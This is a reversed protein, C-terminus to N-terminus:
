AFDVKAARLARALGKRLKKERTRLQQRKLGLNRAAEEQSLNLVYRQEYLGRLEPPLAALYREVVALVAPDIPEPEGDDPAELEALEPMVIERKHKRAWDILVNRAITAVYPGYERVGDFGLRARESFARAFVEQILDALDAVGVGSIRVGRQALVFGHRVLAEVRDVYTRYVRELARQEGRRFQRLLEPDERFITV